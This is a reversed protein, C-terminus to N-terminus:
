GGKGRMRPPSGHAGDFPVCSAAKEGCARPHDAARYGARQGLTRKGAHAPTIRSRYMRFSKSIDKGRMRPPSGVNSFQPLPQEDKEGCARPHDTATFTVDGSGDSKGAHAPTIRGERLAGDHRPAKGRMRPPSGTDARRRQLGPRKEGCARPHDAGRAPYTSEHRRKGAHAPTIREGSSGVALNPAKGRM